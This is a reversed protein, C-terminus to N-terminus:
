IVSLTYLGSSSSLPDGSVVNIESGDFNTVTAIVEPDEGSNDTASFIYTEDSIGDSVPYIGYDIPSDITIIPPETDVVPSWLIPPASIGYGIYEDIEIPNQFTGDGNGSIFLMGISGASAVIDLDGDRDFDYADALGGGPMNEGLAEDIHNTDYAEGAYSFQGTGDGEYLYTQGPDGDDDQGIIADLHGDDNFDGTVLAQTDGYGYIIIQQDNTFVYNNEFTGDGNGTYLYVKGTNYQAILFDMNGDENFDGTDIGTGMGGPPPQKWDASLTSLSFTNDGNNSFLYIFPESSAVVYDYYEDNNFDATASEAWSYGNWELILGEAITTKLFVGNDDNIFLYSTGSFTQITFDLDGDNDFDAIATGLCIDGINGVLQKESFTGDQNSLFAYVDGNVDGTVFFVDSTGVPPETDLSPAVPVLFSGLGSAVQVAPQFTGDGNGKKIFLLGVTGGEYNSIILDRHGDKDFDHSELRLYETGTDSGSCVVSNYVFNGTGDGTYLYANSLYLSWGEVIIDLHGDEDFDGTTIDIARHEGFDGLDFLSRMTFGGNGDGEYLYIQQTYYDTIVFDVFGDENFDGEKASAPNSIPLLTSYTFTKDQNNTFLYVRGNHTPAVFDKFGDRNYDAVAFRVVGGKYEVDSAIIRQVFDGLGVNEYLYFNTVELGDDITWAGAVFDLDGDNDFDAIGAGSEFGLDDVYSVSGFTGDNNSPIYFLKGSPDSGGKGVMIVFEDQYPNVSVASVPTITSTLVVLFLFLILIKSTKM